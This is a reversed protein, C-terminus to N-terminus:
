MRVPTAIDMRHLLPPISQTAGVFFLIRGDLSLRDGNFFGRCDHFPAWFPRCTHVNAVTIRMCRNKNTYKGKKDIEAIVSMMGAEVDAEKVDAFVKGVGEPVTQKGECKYAPFFVCGYTGQGLFKGGSQTVIGEM